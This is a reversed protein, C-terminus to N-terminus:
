RSWQRPEVPVRSPSCWRELWSLWSGVPPWHTLGRKIRTVGPLILGLAGAMECLGIFRLFVGPLPMQATMVEIPLVLKMSGAFLFILALVVQVSWLTISM